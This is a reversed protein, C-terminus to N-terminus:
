IIWVKSRGRLSRELFQVNYKDNNHPFPEFKNNHFRGFLDSVRYHDQKWNPRRASISM